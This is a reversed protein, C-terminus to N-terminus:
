GSAQFSLPPEAPVNEGLAANTWAASGTTPPVAYVAFTCHFAFLDSGPEIQAPAPGIPPLKEGVESLTTSMGLGAPAVTLDLVWCYVSGPLLPLVHCFISAVLRCSM